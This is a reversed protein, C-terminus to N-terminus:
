NNMVGLNLTNAIREISTSCILENHDTLVEAEPQMITQGYFAVRGGPIAPANHL